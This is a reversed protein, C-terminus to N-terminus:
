RHNCEKLESYLKWRNGCRCKHYGIADGDCCNLAELRNRLSYDTEPYNHDEHYKNCSLCKYYPEILSPPKDIPKNTEKKDIPKNTEKFVINSPTDKEQLIKVKDQEITSNYESKILESRNELKTMQSPMYKLCSSCFFLSNYAGKPTDSYEKRCNHCKYTM